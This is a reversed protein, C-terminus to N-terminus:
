AARERRQRRWDRHAANYRERNAQRWRALAARHADRDRADARCAASCYVRMQGIAVVALLTGCRCRGIRDRPQLRSVWAPLVDYAPEAERNARELAETGSTAELLRVTARDLDNM